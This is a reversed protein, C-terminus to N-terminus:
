FEIPEPAKDSAVYVTATITVQLPVYEDPCGSEEYAAMRAKEANILSLMVNNDAYLPLGKPLRHANGHRDVVSLNNLWGDAKVLDTKAAVTKDTKRLAM